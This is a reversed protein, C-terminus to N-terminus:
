SKITALRLDSIGGALRDICIILVLVVIELSKRLKDKFQKNKIKNKEIM